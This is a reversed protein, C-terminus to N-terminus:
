CRPGSWPAVGTDTRSSEWGLGEVGARQAGPEESVLGTMSRAMSEVHAYTYARIEEGSIGYVELSYLERPPYEQLDDLGGLAPLGDICVRPEAPRGNIDVCWHSRAQGRCPIIHVPSFAQIVEWVNEVKTASLREPDFVRVIGEYRNRRVSLNWSVDPLGLLVASDPMLFIQIPYVRGAGDISRDKRGYGVRQIQVYSPGVPVDPFLFAGLSDTVVGLDQWPLSVLVDPLPEGSGGDLVVGFVDSFGDVTVDLGDLSV